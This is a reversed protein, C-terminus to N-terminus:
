VETPPEATRIANQASRLQEAFDALSPSLRCSAAVDLRQAIPLATSLREDRSAREDGYLEQKLRRREQPTTGFQDAKQNHPFRGAALLLWTELLQVPVGFIFQLPALAPRSWRSVEIVGASTRLACLRCESQQTKEHSTWHPLAGDNDILFVAGHAESRFVARAIAPAIRLAEQWGGSRRMVLDARLAEVPEDLIKEALVRLIEDDTRDETCFALKM